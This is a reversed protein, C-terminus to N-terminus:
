RALVEVMMRFALMPHRSPYDLRSADQCLWAILAMPPYGPKVPFHAEGGEMVDALCALVSAMAEAEGDLKLGDEILVAFEKHIFGGDSGDLVAAVLRETAHALRARDLRQGSWDLIREALPVHDTKGTEFAERWFTLRAAAILNESARTARRYELWLLLMDALFARDRRAAFGTTLALAPFEHRLASVSDM